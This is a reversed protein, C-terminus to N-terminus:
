KNECTAFAHSAKPYPIVTGSYEARIALVLLRADNLWLCGVKKFGAIVAANCSAAAAEAREQTYWGTIKPRDIGITTVGVVDNGSMGKVPTGCVSTCAIERNDNQPTKTPDCTGAVSCSYSRSQQKMNRADCASMDTWPNPQWTGTCGSYVAQTAAPKPGANGCEYETPPTVAKGDPGTRECSVSHTASASCTNDFPGEVWRHPCGDYFAATQTLVEKPLKACLADQVVEDDGDRMCIAARTKSATDSCASDYEGYASYEWRYTHTPPKPNAITRRMVVVDDASTQAAAPLATQMACGLIIGIRLAHRM